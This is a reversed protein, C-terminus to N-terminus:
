STERGDTGERAMRNQIKELLVAIQANLNPQGRKNRQSLVKDMKRKMSKYKALSIERREKEKRAKERRAEREAIVRQYALEAKEHAHLRRKKRYIPKREVDENGSYQPLCTEMTSATSQESEMTEFSKKKSATTMHLLSLEKQCDLACDSSYVVYVCM